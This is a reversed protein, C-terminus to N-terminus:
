SYRIEKGTLLWASIIAESVNRSLSNIYALAHLANPYV